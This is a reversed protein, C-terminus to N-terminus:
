SRVPRDVESILAVIPNPTDSGAANDRGDYSVAVSRELFPLQRLLYLEVRGIADREAAVASQIDGCGVRDVLHGGADRIYRLPLLLAQDGGGVTRRQKAEIRPAFVDLGNFRYRAHCLQRESVGVCSKEGGDLVLM